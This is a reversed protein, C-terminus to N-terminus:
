KKLNLNFYEIAANRLATNGFGSQSHKGSQLLKKYGAAGGSKCANYVQIARSAVSSKIGSLGENMEAAVCLMAPLNAGREIQTFLKLWAEKDLPSRRARRERKVTPQESALEMSHVTCCPCELMQSHLAIGEADMDITLTINYKNM